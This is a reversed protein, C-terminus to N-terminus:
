PIQDLPIPAAEGLPTMPASFTVALAFNPEIAQLLGTPSVSLVRLPGEISPTFSVASQPPSISITEVEISGQQDQTNSNCSILFLLCVLLVINKMLINVMVDYYM